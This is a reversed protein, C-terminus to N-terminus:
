RLREGIFIVCPALKEALTFTARCPVLTISIKFGAPLCASLLCAPGPSRAGEAVGPGLM